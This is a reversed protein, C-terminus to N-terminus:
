RYRYKANNLVVIVHTVVYFQFVCTTHAGMLWFSLAIRYDVVMYMKEARLQTGKWVFNNLNGDLDFLSWGQDFVRGKEKVWDDCNLCFYVEM